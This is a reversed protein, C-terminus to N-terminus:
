SSGAPRGPRRLDPRGPLRVRGRSRCGGGYVYHQDGRVAAEDLRRGATGRGAQLDLDPHRDRVGAPWARRTPRTSAATRTNTCGATWGCGDQANCPAM